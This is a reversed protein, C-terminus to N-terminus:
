EAPTKSTICYYEHQLVSSECPTLSRPISTVTKLSRPSRNPHRTLAVRNPLRPGSANSATPKSCSAIVVLCLLFAALPPLDFIPTQPQFTHDSRNRDANGREETLRRQRSKSTKVAVMRRRATRMKTTHSTYIARQVRGSSQIIVAGGTLKESESRQQCHHNQESSKSNEDM